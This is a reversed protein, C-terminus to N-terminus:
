IQVFVEEQYILIAGGLGSVLGISNFSPSYENNLFLDWQDSSVIKNKLEDCTIADSEFLSSLLFYLGSLGNQVNINSKSFEDNILNEINMKKELLQVHEEWKPLSNSRLIKKMGAMLLLKSSQLLPYTSLIRDSLEDLIKDIKYNYFDLKYVQSLVFMYNPIFYGNISFSSPESFKDSLHGMEEIQNIGTIVINEYIFRLNKNLKRNELRISFYLIYEWFSKFIYNSNNENVTALLAIFSKYIIDDLDALVYNVNGKLFEKDLLYNIGLCVGILGNGLDINSETSIQNYISDLLKNALKKYRKDNTLQAQHFFYISVGMKGHFLGMPMNDMNQSLVYHNFKDICENMFKIQDGEDM